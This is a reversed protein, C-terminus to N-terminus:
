KAAPKAPDIPPKVPKVLSAAAQGSFVKQLTAALSGALVLWGALEAATINAGAVAAIIPVVAGAVVTALTPAELKAFDALILKLAALVKQM